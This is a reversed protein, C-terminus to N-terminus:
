MYEKDYIDDARKLAYNILEDLLKSFEFGSAGMLQPYMSIATFGPITNIENIRVGDSCLFFDVRSFGSCGMATYAKVATERIKQEDKSSIRSPIFTETKNALYKADYDYFDNCPAIEGTCSAIPAENGLVACEIESGVLTEEVLVKSDNKFALEMADYLEKRNHAKTIGVSSGANAPKVFCPYKLEEEVADIYAEKTNKYESKTTTLWKAQAIGARELIAHTVDKDMCAASSLAGCGVFPIGAMTFLGQITGDEGNKGHLVPFICDLRIEYPKEGLVVVGHTGRDPSIVCPTCGTKQWENTKINDADGEYLFMRGTKTIGIKVIDYKQTDLHSLISSASLLSIEYESSAGGFVVGLKLKGM